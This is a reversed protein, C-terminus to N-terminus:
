VCDAEEDEEQVHDQIFYRDASYSLILITAGTVASEAVFQMGQDFRM